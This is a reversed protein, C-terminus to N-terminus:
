TEPYSRSEYSRDQQSKSSFDAGHRGRLKQLNKAWVVGVDQEGKWNLWGAISAIGDNIESFPDDRQFVWAGVLGQLAIAKQVPDMRSRLKDRGWRTKLWNGAKKGKYGWTLIALYWWVDGLELTVEQQNSAQQLELLEDPLNLAGQLVARDGGEAPCFKPAEHLYTEWTIPEM